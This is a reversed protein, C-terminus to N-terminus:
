HIPLGHGRCPKCTPTLLPSGCVSANVMRVSRPARHQRPATHHLRTRGRVRQHSLFAGSAHLLLPCCLRGFGPCPSPRSCLSKWRWLSRHSAQTSVPTRKYLSPGVAMLVCLGQGCGAPPLTHSRVSVSRQRGLGCTGCDGNFGKVSSANASCSRIRKTSTLERNSCSGM